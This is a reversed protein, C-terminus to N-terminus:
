EITNNAGRGSHALGYVQCSFHGTTVSKHKKCTFCACPFLNKGIGNMMGTRTGFLSKNRDVTRSKGFLQEFTFEESM